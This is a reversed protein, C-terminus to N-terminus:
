SAPEEAEAGEKSEDAKGAKGDSEDEVEKKVIEMGLERKYRELKKVIEAEVDIGARILGQRWSELQRAEARQQKEALRRISRNPATHRVLYKPGSKPKAKDKKPLATETLELEETEEESM